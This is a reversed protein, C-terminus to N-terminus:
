EISSAIDQFDKTQEGRFVAAITELVRRIGAPIGSLKTFDGFNIKFVQVMFAILDLTRGTFVENIVDEDLAVADGKGGIRVAIYNPNILLQELKKLSAGDLHQPISDIIMYLVNIGTERANANEGTAGAGLMAGGIAPLLVKQVEGLVDLGELPPIQQIYFVDKGMRYETREFM